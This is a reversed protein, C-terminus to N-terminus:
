PRALERLTLGNDVTILNEGLRGELLRAMRALENDDVLVGVATLLGWAHRAAWDGPVEKTVETVRRGLAPATWVEAALVRRFPAPRWIEFTVSGDREIMWELRGSTTSHRVRGKDDLVPAVIGGIRPFSENDLQAVVAAQISEISTLDKTAKCDAAWLHGYAGALKRAVQAQIKAMEQM